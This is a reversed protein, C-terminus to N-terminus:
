RWNFQTTAELFLGNPLTLNYNASGTHDHVGGAPCLDTLLSLPGSIAGYALGQCKNCWQWKDQNM